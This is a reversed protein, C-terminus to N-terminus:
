ACDFALVGKFSACDQPNIFFDYNATLRWKYIISNNTCETNFLVDYKVGPLNFSSVSYRTVAAAGTITEPTSPWYTKSVFATANKRILYTRKASVTSEINWLDFDIPISSMKRAASAGTPNSTEMQVNWMQQYLNGADLLYPSTIRNKIAAQSFYGMLGPTFYAAPVQTVLGSETFSGLYANAAKYTDLKAVATQTLTEDLKKMYAMMAKALIEEKSWLSTRLAKENIAFEVQKCLGIEYTKCNDGIENGAITCETTCDVPDDADCTTLWIVKVTKDKSSDTLDPLQANQNAMLVKLANTEAKFDENAQADAWVEDMKVKSELLASCDFNGASM